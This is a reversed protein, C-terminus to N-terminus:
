EDAEPIWQWCSIWHGGDALSIQADSEFKLDDKWGTYHKAETIQEETATMDLAEETAPISGALLQRVSRRFQDAWDVTDAGSVSTDEDDFGLSATDDLLRQLMDRMPGFANVAKAIFEMAEPTSIGYVLIEGDAAIISDHNGLGPVFRVPTKVPANM